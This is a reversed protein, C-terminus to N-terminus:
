DELLTMRIFGLPKCSSDVRRSKPFSYNSYRQNQPRAVPVISENFKEFTETWAGTIFRWGSGAGLRLICSTKSPDKCKQIQEMIIELNKIYKDVNEANPNNIHDQWYKIEHALLSKTHQNITSFMKNLSSMCEPLEQVYNKAYGYAKLDLKIECVSSDKPMLTEVLQSKSTDWYSNTGRENISFLRVINEYNNGFVADGIKLFRYIDKNPNEGLLHQEIAKANIRTPNVLNEVGNKKNIINSLVATRIAGKISSGPIYPDGLGNHIFTQLTDNEKLTEYTHDIRFCYDDTIAKPVYTKMFEIISKKREITAIWADLTKTDNKILSMIKRPSIIGVYNDGGEQFNIFDSGYQLIEGSGIHVRSVIDIKVKSM